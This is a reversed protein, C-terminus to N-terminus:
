ERGGGGLGPRLTGQNRFQHRRRDPDARHPRYRLAPLPRAAPDPGAGGCAPLPLCIPGPLRRRRPPPNREKPIRSPSRRSRLQLLRGGPDGGPGLRDEYLLDANWGTFDGPNNQTGAGDNQTMGALGLALIRKGGYYTTGTYWNREPDLLNVTTRGAYALNDDQNSGDDEKRGEFAGVQYKVLGDGLLGWVAAGDDRGIFTNPYRSAFIPFRYTTNLFPGALNSRDVPLLMRGARLRFAEAVKYHLFADMVRVEDDDQMGRDVAFDFGLNEMLDSRLYLVTDDVEFDKSFSDGSASGNEQATFSTRLVASITLSRTEDIQIEAGVAWSPPSAVLLAAGAIAAGLGLRGIGYGTIRGAPSEHNGGPRRRDQFPQMAIPSEHAIPELGIGAGPLIPPGAWGWGM